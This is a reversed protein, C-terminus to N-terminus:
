KCSCDKDGHQHKDCDKGGNGRSPRMEQYKKYQKKSLIEKLKADYEAKRAKQKQREAKHQAMQEPTPFNPRAKVDSKEKMDCKEKVDGQPEVRTAGTQADVKPQHPAYKRGDKGGPKPGKKHHPGFPKGPRKFVDAYEQNLKGVKEAQKKSLNLEKTMKETMQEPCIAKGHHKDQMHHQPHQEQCTTNANNQAIASGMWLTAMM